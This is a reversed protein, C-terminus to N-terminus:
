GLYKLFKGFDHALNAFVSIARKDRWSRALQAKKSHQSGSHRNSEPWNKGESADLGVM